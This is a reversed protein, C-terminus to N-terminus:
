KDMSLNFNVWRLLLAEPTLPVGGGYREPLSFGCVCSQGHVPKEWLSGRSRTYICRVPRTMLTHPFLLTSVSNSSTHYVLATINATMLSFLVQLTSIDWLIEDAMKWFPTQYSWVYEFIWIWLWIIKLIVMTLIPGAPARAGGPALANVSMTIVTFILSRYKFPYVNCHRENKRKFRQCNPEKDFLKNLCAVFFVNSTRM